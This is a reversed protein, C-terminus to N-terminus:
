KRPRFFQYLTISYITGIMFPSAWELAERVQEVPSPAGRGGKTAGTVSEEVERLRELLPTLDVAGGGRAGSGGGHRSAEQAVMVVKIDLPKEVRLKGGVNAISKPFSKTLM